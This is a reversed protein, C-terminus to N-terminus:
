AKLSSKRRRRGLLGIAGLGLLGLTTPEPVASTGAGSGAIQATAVASPNAIESAINAGQTNFANDILTYDSGDIHGDYNFDGNFWGSAGALYGNDIRSYDSGDVTGDLTADGYYTYKVLVDSSTVGGSVNEFSGTAGTFYGVATLHTSDNAAQTSTIVGSSANTGNWAGNNYANQIQTFIVAAATTGNVNGSSTNLNHIVLANNTLDITGNNSLVSVTPVFNANTTHNAIQVIAGGSINLASNVPLANASALALTGANVFTGGTYTNNTSITVLGGGSVSLSGSGAIGGSGALTYAGATSNTFNVSTPHVTSNLTVAFHGGNNDAFSVRDGGAAGNSTDSYAAPAGSSVNWNQTSSSDWVTSPSGTWNLNAPGSVIINAALELSIASLASSGSANDSTPNFTLTELYSTVSQTSDFSVGVGQSSGAAVGSLGGIGTLSFGSGSVNFTGGLSDEFTSLESNLLDLASTLTGTNQPVNGLNLEYSNGSGTLTGSGNNFNYQPQAFYNVTGTVTITQGALATSALGDITGNSTFGVPVTGSVAGAVATNASGGLGVTIATSAPAGVRLDSVSGSASAAGTTTGPAADLGETFNTNSTAANSVSVPVTGFSQGVHVIGLNVPSSVTNPAAYAFVGGTVNITQGTLGTSALGDITGNSTFSVPVTGSVAGATGTNTNGGLGVTIATSAPAGVRLDTVSGSASASGTATGPAADLGETFNVGGTGANSISVPTTGFTDGVHVNGLSVPTTITSPAAYAFVGGTVNITQGTLSTSTLGDITGNSTFSVPVTGSVAGATGTNTSGGLGVTIATSAPAGVRLDSVSGSASASGTATGLAADLGETFNAGGTGANSISVPATGFAGGVHVNGLTVPTTITNPAAYAFVGGTVNITQGTLGTSALGDITGNSTFSVPVTGSVAGATGTNTSGGLGVTIATSAPAGVRLDTVSGSASASGTATGPAADLGETFNVGGTGANSISVPATGFAGGVHVNGLTVPTTVTNPAAYAFVGGTVNITQGTLGTSALGDITGNSTFSVPVTGSVAGATGTNTSGGLGVTIATSAPAGVRLDSVSGSASASGTATGPAADLGETFNVGGTGANSISVPTTGFTDGVHVNGLSVPTSITNPAAYAFM